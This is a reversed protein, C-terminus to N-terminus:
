KINLVLNSENGIYTISSLLLKVKMLVQTDHGENQNSASIDEEIDIIYGKVMMVDDYDQLRGSSNYAANFIFSYTYPESDKMQQYFQKGSYADAVRIVFDIYSSDEMRNMMQVALRNRQNGYTFHQVVYCKDRTISEGVQTVDEAVLMARLLSNTYAM